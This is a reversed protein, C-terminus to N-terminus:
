EVPTKMNFVQFIIKATKSGIGRIENLEAESMATIEALSKGTMALAHAVRTNIGPMLSLLGKLGDAASIVGKDTIDVSPQVLAKNLKKRESSSIDVRSNRVKVPYYLSQEIFGQILKAIIYATHNLNYTQITQQGCIGSIYNIWGDMQKVQPLVNYLTRIQGVTNKECEVIWIVQMHVGESASNVVSRYYREAQEHAHKADSTINNYLDTITKREILLVRSSDSKSTILVDGAPLSSLQIDKIGTKSLRAFLDSPERHDVLVVADKLTSDKFPASTVDLHLAENYLAEQTSDKFSFDDARGAYPQGDVRGFYNRRQEFRGQGVVNSSQSRAKRSAVDRPLYSDILGMGHLQESLERLGIANIDIGVSELFDEIAKKRSASPATVHLKNAKKGIYEGDTGSVYFRIFVTSTNPKWPKFLM